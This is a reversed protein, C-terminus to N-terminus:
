DGTWNSGARPGSDGVTRSWDRHEHGWRDFWAARVAAEDGADREGRMCALAIDNAVTQAKHRNPATRIAAIAEQLTM